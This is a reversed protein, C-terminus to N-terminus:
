RRSESRSDAGSEEQDRKKKAAAKRKKRGRLVSRVILVLLLVPVVLIGIAIADVVWGNELGSGTVEEMRDNVWPQLRTEWLRWAGALGLGGVVLYAILNTDEDNM